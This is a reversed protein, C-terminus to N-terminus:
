VMYLSLYGHTYSEVGEPELIAGLAEVDQVELTQHFRGVKRFTGM